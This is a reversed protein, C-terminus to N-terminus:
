LRRTQSLHSMEGLRKALDTIRLVLALSCAIVVPAIQVGSRLAILSSAVPLLFAVLVIARGYPPWGSSQGQMVIYALAPSLCVLDYDMVYPTVALASVALTAGLAAGTPRTAALSALVFLVAIAFGGQILGATWLNAGLLRAAIFASQIRAEAIMGGTIASMANASGHLFALWPAFGFAAVSLLSLIGFGCIAAFLSRWRGSAVLAFPVCIALQPKCALVALCLGGTAPRRDALLMFWALCAASILGNQGALVTIWIGPYAVFILLSTCAPLMRRYAALLPVLGLAVFVVFAIWYPLLSWTWCLLLVPPPYLFPLYAGAKMTRIAHETQAMIAPSYVSAAHGGRALVGAAYFCPFDAGVSGWAAGMVQATVMGGAWIALTITLLVSWGRMRAANMWTADRLLWTFFGIAGTV